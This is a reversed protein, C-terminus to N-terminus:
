VDETFVGRASVGYYRYGNFMGCGSSYFYLSRGGGKGVGQLSSSWWYAYSGVGSFPTGDCYGAAPVFMTNGNTGTFVRGNIGSGNYDTVWANTTQDLLAQLEADTPSRWQGGMNVCVPDDELDLTVKQDTSNYKTFANQTGFRYTNWTYDSKTTIEGWAYYNGYDYITDAGVNKTAFLIKKNNLVIGLDVYEHAPAPPVGESLKVGAQGQISSVTNFPWTALITAAEQANAFHKLYKM